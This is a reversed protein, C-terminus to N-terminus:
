LYNKRLEFMQLRISIREPNNRDLQTVREKRKLKAEPSNDFKISIKKNYEPERNTSM